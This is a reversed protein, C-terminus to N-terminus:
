YDTHVSNFIADKGRRNKYILGTVRTFLVLNGMLFFPLFFEHPMFMSIKM